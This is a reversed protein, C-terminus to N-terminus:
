RAVKKGYLSAFMCEPAHHRNKLTPRRSPRIYTSLKNRAEFSNFLTKVRPGSGDCDRVILMKPLVHRQSVPSDLVFSVLLM